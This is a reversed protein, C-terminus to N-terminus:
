FEKLQRILRGPNGVMVCHDPVDEKVVTGAGIISGRGIKVNPIIVAGAGVHTGEGVHVNGCLTANPSIHVFDAIVSEHDIVAGTNIIAHRGVTVFANLIAGAMVVTGDGIKVSSDKIVSPHIAKLFRCHLSSAITKRARNDGISIIVHDNESITVNQQLYCPIGRVIPPKITNDLFADIHLSSLSCIDQIVLGHGGAGILYNM